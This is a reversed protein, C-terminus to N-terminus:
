QGTIVMRMDLGTVGQGEPFVVLRNIDLEVIEPFDTVLQSIRLIADELADIDSRPRGRVGYLLRSSRIEEIMQRADRRSLPAIRFAVDKLAEVYIGGLGFMILPGFQPDRNMGLITETGGEVQKQVLCGWIEVDPMYRLTRLVLLDFSDRVEQSGTVGTKVGGIDTKHLIDPSAIKLVVPYGIDEAFKVAEDPTRCLRSAPTPIGCAELVKQAGTEGIELQGRERAGDFVEKIPKRPITIRTIRRKPREQRKKQCVMAKLSIVAREPIAYNPVRNDNLIRIGAEVHPKGMFCALITKAQKESRSAVVRATEEVQTMIQPTLIVIIAGVNRDDILADLALRYREALADGLVDVPNIVSAAGPLEAALRKMTEQSLNALRLGAREIADTAMIGPGGANTVVAIQDNGPLPQNVLSSAMDFLDAVSEARIVGAQKFAAEYARESGALSGTHSSVAKSGANTVGAKIAILPKKRTFTRAAKMFKGGDSIGELYALVVKTDPDNSWYDLFDVENLQAKNGLSVFSSFGLKREFSMDLIATCLAGSQSMLSINGKLPMAGAFSANLPTRTNILGLCNPGLLAMNNESAIRAMEKEAVLGDHGTERFGASIVVVAKVGRRACDSVAEPVRAAPIMIVALDIREGISDLDPYCRLGLIERAAPNVPYVPGKFGCDVINKLVAHGLKGPTRSAGIVAVSDPSFLSGLM